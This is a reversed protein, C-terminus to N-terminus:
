RHADGVRANLLSAVVAVAIGAAVGLRCRMSGGFRRSPPPRAEGLVYSRIGALAEPDIRRRVNRRTSDYVDKYAQLIENGEYDTLPYLEETYKHAELYERSTMYLSRSGSVPSVVALFETAGLFVHIHGSPNDCYAHIITALRDVDVDADSISADDDDDGGGRSGVSRSVDRMHEDVDNLFAEFSELTEGYLQSESDTRALVDSELSRSHTRLDDTIRFLDSYVNRSRDGDIESNRIWYRTCHMRVIEGNVIPVTIHAPPYLDQRIVREIQDDNLMERVFYIGNTRKSYHIVRGSSRTESRGVRVHVVGGPVVFTAELVDQRKDTVDRLKDEIEEKTPPGLAQGNVREFWVSLMREAGPISRKNLYSRYSGLIRNMKDKRKQAQNNSPM